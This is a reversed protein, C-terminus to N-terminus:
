PQIARGDLIYRLGEDKGEYALGYVNELLFARPRTDRLIRLYGTLTRGVPTM